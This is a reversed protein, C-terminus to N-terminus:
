VFVGVAEFLAVAGVAAWSTSKRAGTQHELDFVGATLHHSDTQNQWVFVGVAEFLGFAAWPRSKHARTQHEQDFVGAYFSNLHRSDTQNQRVFVGM